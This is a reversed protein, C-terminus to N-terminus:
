VMIPEKLSMSLRRQRLITPRLSLSWLKLVFEESSTIILELSMVITAVYFELGCDKGVNARPEESCRQSVQVPSPNSVWM